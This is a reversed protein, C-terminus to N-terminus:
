SAGLRAADDPRTLSQNAQNRVANGQGSQLSDRCRSLTCRRHSPRGGMAISVDFEELDLEMRGAEIKTLDLIDNILSLLHRGSALTDNLYEEQKENVSCENLYFKQSDLLLM